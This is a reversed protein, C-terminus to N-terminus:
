YDFSSSYKAKKRFFAMSYVKCVKDPLSHGFKEENFILIEYFENGWWALNSSTFAWHSQWMMSIEIWQIYKM